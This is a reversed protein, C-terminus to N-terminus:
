REKSDRRLYNIMPLEYSYFCIYWVYTWSFRDSTLLSSIKLPRQGFGVRSSTSPIVQLHGTVIFTPYDILFFQIAYTADM